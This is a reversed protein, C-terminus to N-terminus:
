KIGTSLKDPKESKYRGAISIAAEHDVKATAYGRSDLNDPSISAVTM